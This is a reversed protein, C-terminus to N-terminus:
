ESNKDKKLSVEKSSTDESEITTKNDLNKNGNIKQPKKLKNKKGRFISSNPRKESLNYFNNINNNDIKKEKKNNIKNENVKIELKQKKDEILEGESNNIEIQTNIAKEEM